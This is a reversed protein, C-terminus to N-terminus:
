EGEALISLIALLSVLASNVEQVIIRRDMEYAAGNVLPLTDAHMALRKVAEGARRGHAKVAESTAQRERQQTKM